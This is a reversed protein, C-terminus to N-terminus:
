ANSDHIISLGWNHSNDSQMPIGYYKHMCTDRDSFVDHMSYMKTVGMQIPIRHIEM